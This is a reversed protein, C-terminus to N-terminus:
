MHFPLSFQNSEDSDWFVCIHPKMKLSPKSILSDTSHYLLSQLLNNLLRGTLYPFLDHANGNFAADPANPHKPARAQFQTDARSTNRANKRVSHAAGPVDHQACVDQGPHRRQALSPTSPACTKAQGADPARADELRISSAM